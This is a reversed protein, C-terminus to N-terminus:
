REPFHHVVTTTLSTAKKYHWTYKYVSIRAWYSRSLTQFSFRVHRIPFCGHNTLIQGSVTLEKRTTIWTVYKPNPNLLNLILVLQRKTCTFHQRNTTACPPAIGRGNNKLYGCVSTLLIANHRWRSLATIVVAHYVDAEHRMVRRAVWWAWSLIGWLSFGWVGSFYHLFHSFYALFNDQGDSLFSNGRADSICHIYLKNKVLDLKSQSRRGALTVSCGNLKGKEVM